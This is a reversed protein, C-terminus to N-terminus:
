EVGKTADQRVLAVLDPIPEDETVLLDGDTDTLWTDIRRTTTM